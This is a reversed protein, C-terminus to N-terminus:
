TTVALQLGLTVLLQHAGNAASWMRPQPLQRDQQRAAQVFSSRM